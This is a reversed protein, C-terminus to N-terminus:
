FGPSAPARVVGLPEESRGGEGDVDHDQADSVPLKLNKEHHTGLSYQAERSAEDTGGFGGSLRGGALKALLGPDVPDIQLLELREGSRLTVRAPPYRGNGVEREHWGRNLGIVQGRSPRTGVIRWWKRVVM